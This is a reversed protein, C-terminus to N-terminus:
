RQVICGVGWPELELAVEAQNGAVRPQLQDGGFANSFTKGRSLPVRLLPGRVTRYDANFLTYVTEKATSFRNAYVTPLLTPVLPEVDEACFADAHEHLIRFAHQLFNHADECYDGPSQHLWYGEGNLFPYKLLNWGGETFPNYSVLQFVKFTPFAFRFLDVRAPAYRPDASTVSYGLGSDQYQSNVDNPTEETITAISPPIADRIARTTDREGRIPPQPVPHGHAASWCTKWTNVFGYQDIYMGNPQLEGAVRHYTEALHERWGDAAPCMMHETPAGPWLLPKGHQMRIDYQDVNQSGWVGREDCLYGEIYLGVPIGLEQAKAIAGRVKALGGLEDYHSYDGVRGYKPSQGFDFIHLYDLRGFYDRFQQILPQMEFEGTQPDRPTRWLNMQQYYFVKRFWEKRPVQPRYWSHAWQRYIEFGQRWDGPHARLVTAVTELGAGPAHDSAWYDQRWDVGRDGKELVWRRYVDERDLTQLLLGAGLVPNFVDTLQLPHEGGYYKAESLPQNSVVGGKRCWLYWTDDVTGLRLGSLLPFKVEPRWTTQGLNELDLKLSLGEEASATVTLRGRVPIAPNTSEFAVILPNGPRGLEGVKANASTITQEGDGISFLPGPEVRTAGPPLLLVDADAITIGHDLRLGLEFLGDSVRTVGDSSGKPERAAAPKAAPPALPQVTPIATVPAGENLTVGGVLFLASDMRNRLRLRQIPQDRLGTVAYVAPGTRVEYRGSGVAVPFIQDTTGDAYDVVCCFREPTTFRQMPVPDGMRSADQSPLRASLLLYLESARRGMPIECMSDIDAPTVLVNRPGAPIAFPIGAAAVHGAPLWNSLGMSGLKGEAETDALPTLDLAHFQQLRANDWGTEFTLLDAIDFRSRRGSFRLWDVELSAPQGDSGCQLAANVATFSADLQVVAVHWQGDSVLERLRIPQANQAPMGGAQSGLFLFYDGWAALHSARYRVALFRFGSLDLPEPLKASWKMGRNFGEASLKLLGDDVKADYQEADLALWDPEPKLERLTEAEVQTVLPPPPNTPLVTAGEPPDDTLRVYDLQLEARPGRCEVDTVIAKVMGDVQLAYLDLAVVHWQGDQQLQRTDLIMHGEPQGDYVWVAYAPALGGARYRLVLYSSRDSDFGPTPFYFKMGRGPEDVSLTVIGDQVAVVPNAAPNGLFSPRPEWGPTTDFEAPFPLATLLSLLLALTSM